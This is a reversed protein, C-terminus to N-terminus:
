VNWLPNLINEEFSEKTNKTQIAKWERDIPYTKLVYENIDHIDDKESKPKWESYNQYEVSTHYQKEYEFLKEM